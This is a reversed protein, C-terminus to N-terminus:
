CSKNLLRSKLFNRFFSVERYVYLSTDKKLFKKFLRNKFLDQQDAALAESWYLFPTEKGLDSASLYRGTMHKSAWRNQRSCSLEDVLCSM